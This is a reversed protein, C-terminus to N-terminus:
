GQKDASPSPYTSWTPSNTSDKSTARPNADIAPWASEPHADYQKLFPYLDVFYREVDTPDLHVPLHTLALRNLVPVLDRPWPDSYCDIPQESGPPYVECRVRWQIKDGFRDQREVATIRGPRLRLRNLFRQRRLRVGIVPLWCLGGAVFLLSGALPANSMLLFGLLLAFATLFGAASYAFDLESTRITPKPTTATRIKPM